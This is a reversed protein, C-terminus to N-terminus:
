GFVTLGTGAPVALIGGGEALSAQPGNGGSISSGASASWVQGGNAVGLRHVTGAQDGIFV